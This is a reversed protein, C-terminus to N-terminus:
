LFINRHVASHVGFTSLIRMTDKEFYPSIGAETIGEVSLTQCLSQQCYKRALPTGM